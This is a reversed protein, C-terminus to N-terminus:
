GRGNSTNAKIELLLAAIEDAFAAKLVNMSEGAVDMTIVGVGDDRLNLTFTKATGTQETVTQETM